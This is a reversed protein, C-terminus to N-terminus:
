SWRGDDDPALLAFQQDITEFYRKVKHADGALKQVLVDVGSDPDYKAKLLEAFTIQLSALWPRDRDVRRWRAPRRHRWRRMSTPKTPRNWNPARAPEEGSPLYGHALVLDRMRTMADINTPVEFVFVQARAIAKDIDPTHWDIGPPLVHISGFLYIDGTEHHSPRGKVHWIAPHAHTVEAAFVPAALLLTFLLVLVRKM